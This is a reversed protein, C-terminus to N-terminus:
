MIGDASAVRAATSVLYGDELQGRSSPCSMVASGQARDISSLQVSLATTAVQDVSGIQATSVIMVPPPM